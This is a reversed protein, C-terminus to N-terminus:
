RMEIGHFLFCIINCRGFSQMMLVSFVMGRMWFIDKHFCARFLAQGNIEVHQIVGFSSLELDVLDVCASGIMTSLNEHGCNAKLAYKVYTQEELPYM